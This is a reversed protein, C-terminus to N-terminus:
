HTQQTSAAQCAEGLSGQHDGELTSALCAGAVVPLVGDRSGQSEVVATLMPSEAIFNMVGTAYWIVHNYSQPMNPTTWAMHCYLMYQVISIAINLDTNYELM